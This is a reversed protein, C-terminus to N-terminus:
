YISVIVYLFLSFAAIMIVILRNKLIKQQKPNDKKNKEIKTKM